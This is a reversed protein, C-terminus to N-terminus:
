RPMIWVSADMLGPFEPPGSTFARPCTMPILAEMKERLPPLSPAPKAMGMSRASRIASSRTSWPATRRAQSPKSTSGTSASAQPRVRPTRTERTAGPDGPSWAAMCAPSLSRNALPLHNFVGSSKSAVRRSRLAPSARSSATSPCGRGTRMCAAARGDTVASRTVTRWSICSMVTVGWTRESRFMMLSSPASM